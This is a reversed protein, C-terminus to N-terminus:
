SKMMIKVRKEGIDAKLVTPECIILNNLIPRLPIYLAIDSYVTYL